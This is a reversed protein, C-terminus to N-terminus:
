RLYDMWARRMAPHVILAWMESKQSMLAVIQRKDGLSWPIERFGNPYVRFTITPQNVTKGNVVYEDMFQMTFYSLEPNFAYAHQVSEFFDDMAGALMDEDRFGAPTRCSVFLGGDLSSQLFRDGCTKRAGSDASAPIATATPLPRTMTPAVFVTRERPPEGGIARVAASLICCGLLGSVALLVNKNM